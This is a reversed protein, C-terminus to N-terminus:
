IEGNGNVTSDPIFSNGINENGTMSKKVLGRNKTKENL